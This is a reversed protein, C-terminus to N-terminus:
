LDCPLNQAFHQPTQFGCAVAVDIIRCESRRLMEKAKEIRVNLVFQHPAFGTSKRFMHSFHATSLGTAKAMQVLTLKRDLRAHIVDNVRDLQGQHLVPVLDVSRGEFGEV